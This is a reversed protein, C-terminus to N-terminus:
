LFNRKRLLYQCERLCAWGIRARSTAAAECGGGSNIRDCLYSFETVTEGADHSKEEQDVVNEHYM